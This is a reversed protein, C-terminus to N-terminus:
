IYTIIRMIRRIIHVETANDDAAAAMTQRDINMNRTRAYLIHGYTIRETRKVM